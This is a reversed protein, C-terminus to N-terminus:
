NKKYKNEIVKKIKSLKDNSEFFKERIRNIAKRNIKNIKNNNEFCFDFKLKGNYVKKLENNLSNVIEIIENDLNLKKQIENIINKNEEKKESVLGINLKKLKIINNDIYKLFRMINLQQGTEM